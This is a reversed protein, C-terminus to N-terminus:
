QKLIPFVFSRQDSTIEVYYLGNSANIQLSPNLEGQPVSMSQIVRRRTDLLRIRVNTLQDGLVLNVIGTTPNPYYDASIGTLSPEVSIAQCDSTVECGNFSIVVAYDGSREPSFGQSTAGAIPLNTACDIWQYNAGAQNASLSTDNVQVGNDLPTITLELRHLITCGEANVTTFSASSNDETYTTGDIWTYPECTNQVDVIEDFYDIRVSQNAFSSNGM